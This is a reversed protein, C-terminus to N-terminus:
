RPAPRARGGANPDATTDARNEAAFRAREDLEALEATLLERARDPDM